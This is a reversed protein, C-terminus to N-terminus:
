LFADIAISFGYYKSPTKKFDFFKGNLCLLFTLGLAM